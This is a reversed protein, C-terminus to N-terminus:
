MRILGVTAIVMALVVFLTIMPLINRAGSDQIYKDTYYVYSVNYTGNVIGAPAGTTTAGLTITGKSNSYTYQTAVTLAYSMNTVTPVGVMKPEGPYVTHAAIGSIPVATLNTLAMSENVIRFSNGSEYLTNAFTPLLSVGVILAIGITFLATTFVAMDGKSRKKSLKLPKMKLNLNLKDM